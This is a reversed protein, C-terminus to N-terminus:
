RYILFYVMPTKIDKEILLAFGFDGIKWTNGMKFINAPKLDRHIINNKMLESYGESIHKVIISADM